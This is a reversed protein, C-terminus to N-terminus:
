ARAAGTLEVVQLVHRDVAHAEALARGAGRLAERYARDAFFREVAAELGPFTGDSGPEVAVYHVEPALFGEYAHRPALPVTGCAMAELFRPGVTGAASVSNGLLACSRMWAVYPEGVLFGEGNRSLTLSVPRTGELRRLAEYFRAREGGNWESNANARFGLAFPRAADPAEGPPPGFQALDVGFPKWELRTGPPAVLHGLASRTHTVVLRPRLYALFANKRAFHKYDNKTFVAVPTRGRRLARLAAHRFWLRDRVRSPLLRAGRLRAYHEIAAHGLVVLDFGAPDPLPELPHALTTPYARLFARQYALYFNGQAYGARDDTVFLVRPRTV